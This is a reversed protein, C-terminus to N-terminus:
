SQANAISALTFLSWIVDLIRRANIRHRKQYPRPDVYIVDYRIAFRSWSRQVGTNLSKLVSSFLSPKRKQCKTLERICRPCMNIYLLCWFTCKAHYSVKLSRGMASIQARLLSSRPAIVSSGGSWGETFDEVVGGAGKSHIRWQNSPAACASIQHKKVHSCDLLWTFIVSELYDSRM